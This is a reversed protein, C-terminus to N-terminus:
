PGAPTDELTFELIAAYKGLKNVKGGDIYFKFGEGTPSWRSNVNYEGAGSHTHTIIDTEAATIIKEETGTDYRVADALIYRADTEGVAQMPALLKAKITWSKQVSRNDAVILNGSIAPDIVRTGENLKAEEIKFDINPISVISLTGAVSLSVSGSESIKEYEGTISGPGDVFRPSKGVATATNNITSTANSSVTAKFTIQASATSNLSGVNVTLLRTGTDYSYENVSPTGTTYTVAAGNIKVEAAAPTFILGAPLVDTVVVDKWTSTISAARDNKATLTYTLVDGADAEDTKGNSSLVTKTMVPLNPLVDAVIYKKVGEFVADHYSYDTYPNINGVGNVNTVPPKILGTQDYLVPTEGVPSTVQAEAHKIVSDGLYVSLEKTETLYAPLTYSWTGDGLVTTTGLLTGSARNGSDYYVYVTAGVEAGTGSLVNTANTLNEDTLRTPQPPTVDLVTRVPTVIDSVESIHVNSGGEDGLAGRWATAVEIQQGKVLFGGNSTPIKFIGTRADDGYVSVAGTGAPDEVVTGAATYATASGAASVAVRVSVEGTYAARIPDYKGEPVTAHGWIFKDADTPVRLEDIVAKQNNATMRSYAPAGKFNSFDVGNTTIGAGFDETSWVSDILSWAASPNGDLNSNTDWVQLDSQTMKFESNVNGVFLRGGGVCNNRFDFYKPKNMTFTLKTRVNTAPSLSSFVGNTGTATQGRVIFYTGEGANIDLDQLNCDIAAGSDTILSVNSNEGTVSFSSVKNSTGNRYQIGQNRNNAGPDKAVGDGVNRLIFDSGSQIDIKNENGYMRIAPTPGGLKNLSIKSDNTVQMLHNGVYSLGGPDDYRIMAGNSSADSSESNISFEAGNNTIIKSDKSYVQLTPAGKSASRSDFTVKAGDDVLIESGIAPDSAERTSEWLTVVAGQAAMIANPNSGSWAANTLNGSIAVETKNGIFEMKAQKSSIRVAMVEADIWINMKANNVKFSSNDVLTEFFLTKLNAVVNADEEVLFTKARFFAALVFGDSEFNNDGSLTIAGNDLHALPRANGSLVNVNNTAVTWNASASVDTASIMSDVSSGTLDVDSLIVQSGATATGLTINQNGMDIKRRTGNDDGNIVKSVTVAGVASSATLDAQINIWDVSASEMASKFESWSSVNATVGPTPLVLAFPTIAASAEEVSDFAKEEAAEDNKKNNIDYKAEALVKGNESLLQLVGEDLQSNKDIDVTFIAEFSKGDDVFEIDLINTDKTAEISLREFNEDDLHNLLNDMHISASGESKLQIKQGSLKPIKLKAVVLKNYEQVRVIELKYEDSSAKIANTKGLFPISGLLLAVIVAMLLYSKKGIKM